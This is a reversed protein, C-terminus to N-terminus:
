RYSAGYGELWDPQFFSQGQDQIDKVLVVNKQLAEEFLSMRTLPNVWRQVEDPQYRRAYKEFMGFLYIDNDLLQKPVTDTLVMPATTCVYVIVSPYNNPAAGATSQIPPPWLGLVSQGGTSNTNSVASGIYYELPIGSTGGSRWGRRIQALEDTSVEYLVQWATQNPSPAWYAEHVMTVYGNPDWPYELQGATVSVQISGNRVQIRTAIIKNVEDFLQYARNLSCKTYTQLFQSVIGQKTNWGQIYLAGPDTQDEASAGSAALPANQKVFAINREFEIEAMSKGVAKNLWRGSIADAPVYQAAFIEYMRYLYIYDNLLQVPVNDGSSMTVSNTLYATVIPYGANTTESPPPWIGIVGQGGTSAGNAPASSIYYAVPTESPANGSRWNTMEDALKDIDMQFLQVASGPTSDPVYYVEHLMTVEGSADWDYEQQGATLSVSLTTNRVQVRACIERHVDGFIQTQIAPWSQPYTANFKAIVEAVTSSM